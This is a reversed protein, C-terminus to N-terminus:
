IYKCSDSFFFLYPKEKDRTTVSVKENCFRKYLVSILSNSITFYVMRVCLINKDM